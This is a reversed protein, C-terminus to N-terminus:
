VQFYFRSYEAYFLNILYSINNKGTGQITFHGDNENLKSIKHSPQQQKKEEFYRIANVVTTDKTPTANLKSPINAFERYDTESTNPSKIKINGNALRHTSGTTTSTISDNCKDCIFQANEGYNSIM